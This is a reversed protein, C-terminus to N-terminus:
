WNGPVGLAQLQAAEPHGAPSSAGSTATSTRRAPSSPAGRRSAAPAITSRASCRAGAPDASTKLPEHGAAPGTIEMETEATIRRNLKGDRVVQWKGNAKRIEVVSGGHAMEIDVLEKTM